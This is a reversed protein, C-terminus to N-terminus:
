AGPASTVHPNVRAWPEFYPASAEASPAGTADTDGGSVAYVSLHTRLNKLVSRALISIDRYAGDGILRSLEDFDGEIIEFGTDGPIASLYAQHNSIHGADRQGQWFRQMEAFVGLSQDERGPIINDWVSILAGRPM